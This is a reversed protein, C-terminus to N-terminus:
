GAPDAKTSRTSKGSGSSATAQAAPAAAAESMGSSAAPIAAAADTAGSDADSAAPDPPILKGTADHGANPDNEMQKQRAQTIGAELSGDKILLDFLPDEQIFEPAHVFSNRTDRNVSFVINGHADHFDACVRSLILM